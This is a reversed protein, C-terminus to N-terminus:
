IRPEHHTESQIDSENIENSVFESNLRISDFANEFQERLDIM